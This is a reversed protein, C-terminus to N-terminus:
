FVEQVTGALATEGGGILEFLDAIMCGVAEYHMYDTVGSDVMVQVQAPFEEDADWFILRLAIQPIPYFEWSSDGKEIKRGGLRRARDELEQLKGSFDSAFGNLLPDTRNGSRIKVPDLDSESCWIGTKKPHEAVDGLLHYLVLAENMFLDETWDPADSSSVAKELVGDALRLRYRQGFYTVYIYEADVPLDLVASARHPDFGAFKERWKQCAAESDTLRYGINRFSHYGM